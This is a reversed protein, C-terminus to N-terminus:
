QVVVSSQQVWGEINDARIHIRGKQVEFVLVPTDRLLTKIPQTSTATEFVQVTKSSIVGHRPEPTATPVPTFTPTITPLPTYTPLPTNTPEATPTPVPTSPLAAVKTRADALTDISDRIMSGVDKQALLTQYGKIALQMAELSQSHAARACQPPELKSLEDAIGQMKDIAPQLEAAPARGAQIVADGWRDIIDNYSNRYPRLAEDACPDSAAAPAATPVVTPQAVTAPSGCAALLLVFVVIFRRM